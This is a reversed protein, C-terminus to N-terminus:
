LAYFGDKELVSALEFFQKQFAEVKINLQDITGAVQPDSLFKEPQFKGKADSFLLLTQILFM